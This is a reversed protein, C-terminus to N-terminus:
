RPLLFSPLGKCFCGAAGPHGGGEKDLSLALENAKFDNPDAYANNCFFSVKWGGRKYDLKFLCFGDVELPHRLLSFVRSEVSDTNLCYMERGMYNSIVGRKVQKWLQREELDLRERGAMIIEDYIDREADDTLEGRLLLNFVSNRNAPDQEDFSYVADLGVVFEMSEPILLQFTDYDSILEVFAPFHENDFFWKWALTVGSYEELKNGPRGSFDVTELRRLGPLDSYGHEASDLIASEHHDIWIFEAVKNRIALMTEPPFSFDLVCVTDRADLEELNLEVGYNVPRCVIDAEMLSGEFYFKAVAGASLGDADTHYFLVVRSM